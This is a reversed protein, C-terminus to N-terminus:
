AERLCSSLKAGKRLRHVFSGMKAGLIANYPLVIFFFIVTTWLLFPVSFHLPFAHRLPLVVAQILSLAAVTGLILPYAIASSILLLSAGRRQSIRANHPLPGRALTNGTLAGAIFAAVFWAALILLEFGFLRAALIVGTGFESFYSPEIAHVALFIFLPGIPIIGAILAMGLSLHVPDFVKVSM